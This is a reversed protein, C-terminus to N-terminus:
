NPVAEVHPSFTAMAALQQALVMQAGKDGPWRTIYAHRCPENDAVVVLHLSTIEVMRVSAKGRLTKGRPRAVHTEGWSWIADEDLGVPRFVSLELEPPPEFAKPKVKRNLVSFHRRDLL